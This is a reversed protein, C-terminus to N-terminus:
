FIIIHAVKKQAVVVEENPAIIELHYHKETMHVWECRQVDILGTWELSSMRTVLDERGSFSGRRRKLIHIHARPFM